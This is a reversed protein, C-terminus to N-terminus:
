IIMFTKEPLLYYFKNLKNINCEAHMEKLVRLNKLGFDCITSDCKFYKSYLKACTASITM